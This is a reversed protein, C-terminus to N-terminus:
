KSASFRDVVVPDPLSIEAIVYPVSSNDQGARSPSFFPHRFHPQSAFRHRRAKFEHEESAVLRMQPRCAFLSHFAFLSLSVIQTGKM